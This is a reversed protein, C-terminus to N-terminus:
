ASSDSHTPKPSWTPRNWRSRPLTQSPKGIGPTRKLISWEQPPIFRNKARREHPSPRGKIRCAMFGYGGAPGSCPTAAHRVTQVFNEANGDFRTLLFDLRRKSTQGHAPMRVQVRLLRVGPFPELANALRILPQRIRGSPTLVIFSPAVTRSAPMGAISATVTVPRDPTFPRGAKGILEEFAIEPKRPSPRGGAPTDVQPKIKLHRASVATFARLGDTILPHHKAPHTRAGSTLRAAFTNGASPSPQHGFPSRDANPDWGRSHMPHPKPNRTGAIM